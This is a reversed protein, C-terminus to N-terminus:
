ITFYRCNSKVKDRLRKTQLQTTLTRLNNLAAEREAEIVTLSELKKLHNQFLKDLVINENDLINAIDYLKKQKLSLTQFNSYLQKAM